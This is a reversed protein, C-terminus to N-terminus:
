LIFNLQYVAVKTLSCLFAFDIIYVDILSHLFLYGKQLMFELSYAPPGTVASALSAYEETDGVTSPESSTQLVRRINPSAM